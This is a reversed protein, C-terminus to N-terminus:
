SVDLISTRLLLFFPKEKENEVMENQGISVQNKLYKNSQTAKTKAEYKVVTALWDAKASSHGM